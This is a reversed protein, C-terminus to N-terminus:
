KAAADAATGAMTSEELRIDMSCPATLRVAHTLKQSVACLPIEGRGGADPDADGFQLIGGPHLVVVFHATGHPISRCGDVLRDMAERAHKAEQKPLGACQDAVVVASVARVHPGSSEGVGAGGGCALAFGLSLVTVAVLSRRITKNSTM